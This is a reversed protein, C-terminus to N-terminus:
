AHSHNDMIEIVNEDDAKIVAKCGSSWKQCVYRANRYSQTAQRYRYGKYTVFRRNGPGFKSFMPVDGSMEILEIANSKQVRKFLKGKCTIYKPEVVVIPENLVLVFYVIICFCLICLREFYSNNCM